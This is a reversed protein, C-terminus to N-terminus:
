IKFKEANHKNIDALTRITGNTGTPRGGPLVADAAVSGQGVRSNNALRKLAALSFFMDCAAQCRMKELTGDDLAVGGRIEQIMGATATDKSAARLVLKRFNCLTKATDFAKADKSFTPLQIGPVIIEAMASTARFSPELMASDKVTLIADGATPAESRLDAQAAEMDRACDAACDKTVEGKGKCTPCEEGDKKGSGGCNPCKEMEDKGTGKADKGEKEKREREKKEEETEDKGTGRRAADLSGAGPLEKRLEAIANDHAAHKTDYEGFKKGITDDDYTTRGGSPMHNHVVVPAGEDAATSPGEVLKLAEEFSAKDNTAFAKRLGATWDAFKGAMSTAGKDHCSCDNTNAHDRISCRSGCRGSEVLAVHNGVINIQRGKGPATQLYDTDYGCSVERLGDRVDKIMASDTILLDALLLDSMDGTGRHPNLVVGVALTKWNSPSVGNSPHGDTVPKGHFSAITETRFVDEEFRDVLVHGEKDGIFGKPLERVDYLQEGTRAIAVDKCILFGDNTLSQTPGLKQKEYFRM